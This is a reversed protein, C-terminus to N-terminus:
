MKILINFNQVNWIYNYKIKLGESLLQWYFVFETFINIMIQFPWSFSINHSLYMIM